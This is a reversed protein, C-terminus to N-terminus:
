MVLMASCILVKVIATLFVFKSLLSILSTCVISVLYLRPFACISCTGNLFVKKKDKGVVGLKRLNKDGMNKEGLNEKDSVELSDRSEDSPRIMNIVLVEGKSVIDADECVALGKESGSPAKPTPRAKKASPLDKTDAM